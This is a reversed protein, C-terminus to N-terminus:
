YLLPARTARHKRQEVVGDPELRLVRDAAAITEPRHAVVIRTMPLAALTELLARESAVDLHSTAEDLILIKPRRYLARALLLRQRQGGSLSDGLDGVSTESGLPMKAIDGALGAAALCDAAWPLNPAPDFFTVNQLITGQLLEDEQLVVGLSRRVAIKGWREIRRGDILVEGACPAYLGSLIRLLTSKGVGSTGVIAVHEGAAITFNVAEFLSRAPDYRFSLNKVSLAGAITPSEADTGYLDREPEHLVIDALRELQVDLLRWNIVQQFVNTASQSFQTLYAVAATLMGLTMRGDSVSRAGLYIASVVMIGTMAGQLSSVLASFNVSKQASALMAAFREIWDREQEAEVASAKISDIARLTEIRKGQEAVLTAIAQKALDMGPAVAAWRLAIFSALGLLAVVALVPSTWLLMAFSLIALSADFMASLLAALAARVQDLGQLRSLIDALKRQHFWQLPLRLMHRFVRLGMEWSLLANLSQMAHARIFAAVANLVALLAFGFAAANLTDPIRRTAVEDVVFRLFMPSVVAYLQAFVSIAVIKAAGNLVTRNLRLLSWARLRSKTM